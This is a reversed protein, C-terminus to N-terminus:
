AAGPLLRAQLRTEVVADGSREVRYADAGRRASVVDAIAEGVFHVAADDDIAYGAPFGDAILSQYLPRRQAEGDYHPCHSGRIFGLGDRLPALRALNFSDTTGCEFWCLSGASGGTLIVGHEWAARLAVDVGHVRWVALMNATNGGGVVVLDQQLLYAAIDDVTRNFLALHSRESREAPFRAYMNVLTESADGTATPIFGVRGRPKGVLGLLYDVIPHVRGAVPRLGGFPIIHREAVVWHLGLSEVECAIDPSM